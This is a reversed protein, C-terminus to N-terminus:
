EASLEGSRGSLRATALRALVAAGLSLLIIVTGSVAAPGLESDYLYQMQLLSLPMTSGTSLLVLTSVQRITAAFVIVAVVAITPATLRVVVGWFIRAWGGGAVRGAEELEAGLQVISGRIVQVGLTISSLWSILILVGVTGYLPRFPPVQLVMWLYGLGLLIGPVTFPLWAFFDLLGRATRGARV